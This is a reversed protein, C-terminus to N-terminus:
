MSMLLLILNLTHQPPTSHLPSPPSVKSLLLPTPPTPTLLLEVHAVIAGEVKMDRRPLLLQPSKILGWAPLVEGRRKEERNVPAEGGM